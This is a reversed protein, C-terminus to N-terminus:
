LRSRTIYRLRKDAEVNMLFQPHNDLIFYYEFFDSKYARSKFCGIYQCYKKFREYDDGFAGFYNASFIKQCYEEDSM